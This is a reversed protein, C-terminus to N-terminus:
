QPLCWGEGRFGPAPRSPPAEQGLRDAEGPDCHAGRERAGRGEGTGMEGTLNILEPSAKLILFAYKHKKSLPTQFAIFLPSPTGNPAGIKLTAVKGLGGGLM